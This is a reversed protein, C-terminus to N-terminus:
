GMQNKAIQEALMQNRKMMDENLSNLAEDFDYTTANTNINNNISNISGSGKSSAVEKAGKKLFKFM